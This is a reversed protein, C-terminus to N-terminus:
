RAESGRASPLRRFYLDVVDHGLRQGRREFKTPPRFALPNGDLDDETLAEFTEPATGFAERTHEAYNAWDTAVHMLGGEKLIRACQRLFDPQVLRRKHHRKKPWPDPFFLNVADFSADGLMQEIVDVADRPVVRVNDLGARELLLLLHGIGPEHIEVGVYDIDPHHAATTVLAEGDGFGIDLVRRADRGFVQALDIRREEYPLGYRPLLMVLARRQAQTMRGPRRVFSRIKRIPREEM